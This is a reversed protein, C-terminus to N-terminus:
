HSPTPLRGRRARVGDGRTWHVGITTASHVTGSWTIDWMYYVWNPSQYIVEFAYRHGTLPQSGFWGDALCPFGDNDRCAYVFHNHGDAPVGHCNQGAVPTSCRAYGIQVICNSCGSWQLNAPLVATIVGTDPNTCANLNRVIAEGYAAIYDTGTGGLGAGRAAYLSFNDARSNDCPGYFSSAGVGTPMALSTFLMLIPLVFAAARRRGM